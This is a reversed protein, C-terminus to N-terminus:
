AWKESISANFFPQNYTASNTSKPWWPVEVLRTTDMREDFQLKNNIRSNYSFQLKILFTLM